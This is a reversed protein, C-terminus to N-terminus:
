FCAEHNGKKTLDWLVMLPTASTVTTDTIPVTWSGYHDIFAIWASEDWRATCVPPAPCQWHGARYAELKTM